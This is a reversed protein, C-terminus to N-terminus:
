GKVPRARVSRRTALTLDHAMHRAPRGLGDVAVSLRAPAGDAPLGRAIAEAIVRAEATATTKMSAPLSLRIRRIKM